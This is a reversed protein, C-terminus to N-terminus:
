IGVGGGTPDEPTYGDTPSGNNDSGDDGDHSATFDFKIWNGIQGNCNKRIYVDVYITFDKDYELGYMNGNQNSLWNNSPRLLINNGNSIDYQSLELVSHNTTHNWNDGNQISGPENTVTNSKKIYIVIDADPPLNNGVKSITMTIANVSSFSNGNDNFSISGKTLDSSM